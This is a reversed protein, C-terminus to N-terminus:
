NDANKTDTFPSSFYRGCVESIYTAWEQITIYSILACGEWEGGASINIVKLM